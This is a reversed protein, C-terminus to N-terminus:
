KSPANGPQRTLAIGIQDAVCVRQFWDRAQAYKEVPIDIARNISSREVRLAGHESDYTAGLVYAFDGTSSVIPKPLTGPRYGQPLRVVVTSKDIKPYQFFVPTTRKSENLLPPQGAQLISLVFMLRNNLMPAYSPWNLTAHMRVPEEPSELGEVKLLRVESSSDDLDFLSAAYIWWLEQRTQRLRERVKHAEHGTFTRTCRGQLNGDADLDLDMSTEACSNEAALSPINLFAQQRPMAMLAPVGEVTWPKMGFGRPIDSTPNCLIWDDGAKVVVSRFPLFQESILDVQFPFASRLPHIATHCELGAGRLLGVLFYHFDPERIITSDIKDLNVLEEIDEVYRMFTDELDARNRFRQYLTQVFAYIRRAKEKPDDTGAVLESAKKQVRDTVFGLDSDELDKQTSFGAWPGLSFPVMEPLPVKFPHRRTVVRELSEDTEIITLSNYTDPAAFPERRISPLNQATFTVQNTKEDSSMKGGHPNLIFCRHKIKRDAPNRSVYEFQRIPVDVRQITNMRWGYMSREREWEWVDLVAGKVVGTIALFTEEVDSDYSRGLFGLLGNRRGEELVNRKRLDDKSFTQSTGDPLTLRAMIEYERNETDRWLRVFRTVDIARIPDYIKFRMSRSVGTKSIPAFTRGYMGNRLRIMNDSSPSKEIEMRYHLIEVAAEPEIQPKDEALEAPTVPEWKPDAAALPRILVVILISLGLWVSSSM